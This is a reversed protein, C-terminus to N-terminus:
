ADDVQHVLLSDIARHAFLRGFFRPNCFFRRKGLFDFLKLAHGDPCGAGACKRKLQSGVVDFAATYVVVPRASRRRPRHVM